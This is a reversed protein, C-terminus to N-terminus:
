YDDKISRTGVNNNNKQYTLFTKNFFAYLVRLYMPLICLFLWVLGCFSVWIFGSPGLGKFEFGVFLV